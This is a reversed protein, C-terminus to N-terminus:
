RYHNKWTSLPTLAGDRTRVTAELGESTKGGPLFSTIKGQSRGDMDVAAIAADILEIPQSDGENPEAESM